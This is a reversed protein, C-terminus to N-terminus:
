AAQAETEQLKRNKDHLKQNIDGIEKNKKKKILRLETNLKSIERYKLDNSDVVFQDLASIEARLRKIEDDTESTDIITLSPVTAMNQIIGEVVINGKYGISTKSKLPVVFPNTGLLEYFFLFLSLM